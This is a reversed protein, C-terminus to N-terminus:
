GTRGIENLLDRARSTRAGGEEIVLNLQHVAEDLRGEHIMVKALLYRAELTMFTEEDFADVYSELDAGAQRTAEEDYTRFLGFVSRDADKLRDLAGLFLSHTSATPQANSRTTFEYHGREVEDAKFAAQRDLSSTTAADLVVLSAVLALVAFVASMVIRHPRALRLGPRPRHARPSRDARPTSDRLPLGEAESSSRQRLSEFHAIPDHAELERSRKEFAEALIRLEPNKEYAAEIVAEEEPTVGAVSGLLRVSVLLAVDDEDVERHSIQDLLGAMTKARELQSSLEPHDSVYQDVEQRSEPSLDWYQNILNEM